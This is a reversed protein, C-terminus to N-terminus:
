NSSLCLVPVPTSEAHRTGRQNGHSDVWWGTARTKMQTAGPICVRGTVENTWFPAPYQGSSSTDSAVTRYGGNLPQFVEIWVQVTMGKHPNPCSYMAFGTANGPTSMDPPSPSISCPHLDPTDFVDHGANASPVLLASAFLAVAVISIAKTKILEDGNGGAYVISQCRLGLVGTGPGVGKGRAGVVYDLCCVVAWAVSDGYRPHAM